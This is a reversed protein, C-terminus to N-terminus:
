KSNVIKVMTFGLMHPLILPSLLFGALRLWGRGDNGAMANAKNLAGFMFLYSFAAYLIFVDSM